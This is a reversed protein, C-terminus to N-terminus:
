PNPDRWLATHTYPGKGEDFLDELNVFDTDIVRFGHHKYFSVGADTSEIWCPEQKRYADPLMYDMIVGGAGHRQHSPLTM